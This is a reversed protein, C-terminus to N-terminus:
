RTVYNFIFHYHTLTYNHFLNVFIREDDIFTCTIFPDDFGEIAMTWDNIGLLKNINLENEAIEEPTRSVADFDRLRFEGGNNYVIAFHDGRSNQEVEKLKIYDTEAGGIQEEFCPEGTELNYMEVRYWDYDNHKTVTVAKSSDFTIIVSSIPYTTPVKSTKVLNNFLNRYNSFRPDPKHV